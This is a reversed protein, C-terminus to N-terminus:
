DARELRDVRFQLRARGAFWSLELCGFLNLTAGDAIASEIERGRRWAILDVFAPAGAVSFRAHEGNTMYRPNVPRVKRLLLIPEPNGPGFPELLELERLLRYGLREPRLELHYVASSQQNAERGAARMAAISAQFRDLLTQELAELRDFAISFGAAEPHGGFQIFLDSAQELLGLVNVGDWTRASGRAYEGDPNVYVVPKRYKETLRAAVIGSVGPELEPHYCFILPRELRAPHEAFHREVREENRRTRKKREENLKVLEAALRRAEDPERALLLNLALRTNGMRGAANLSPGVSWGLERSLVREAPVSLAELLARYGPRYERRGRREFGAQGMGLRVLARNEGVLPVLDTVIGIAAIDAHKRVFELLRPRSRIMHGFLAKGGALDDRRLLELETESLPYLGSELEIWEADPDAALAARAAARTPFRGLRCGARYVVLEAGSQLTLYRGWERTHSLAFGLLLKFVLGVTAIKGQHEYRTQTDRMPNVFACRAADPRREEDHIQHHDLVIVRKGRANLAEIERGHTSGMDLLIVLDANGDRIREYLAGSLGYDDGDDSVVLELPGSHVEALFGGLLATSSVGDVDRDGLVLVSERGAVAARLSLIADEMGPICLPSHLGGPRLSFYDPDSALAAYDPHAALPGLLELAPRVRPEAVAPSLGETVSMISM